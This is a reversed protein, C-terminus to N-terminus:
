CARSDAAGASESPDPPDRDQPRPRRTMRAKKLASIHLFVDDKSQPADILGFGRDDNWHKLRGTQM